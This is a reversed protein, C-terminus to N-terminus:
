HTAQYQGQCPQASRHATTMMEKEFDDDVDQTDDDIDQTEGDAYEYTRSPKRQSIHKRQIVPKPTPAPKPPNIFSTTSANARRNRNQPIQTLSENVEVDSDDDDPNSPENPVLISRKPLLRSAHNSVSDMMDDDCEDIDSLIQAKRSQQRKVMAIQSKSLEPEQADDDDDDDDHIREQSKPNSKNKSGKPRGRPKKDPTKAVSM